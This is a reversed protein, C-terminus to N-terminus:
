CSRVLIACCFGLVFAVVELARSREIRRIRDELEEPTM